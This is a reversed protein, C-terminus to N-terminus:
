RPGSGRFNVTKGFGAVFEKNTTEVVFLLLSTRIVIESGDPLCTKFVDTLAPGSPSTIHCESIEPRFGPTQTTLKFSPSIIFVDFNTFRQFGNCFFSNQQLHRTVIMQLFM